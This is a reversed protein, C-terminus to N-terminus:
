FTALLEDLDEAVEAALKYMGEWYRYVVLGGLNSELSPFQKAQWLREVEEKDEDPDLEPFPEHGKIIYYITSGLAFIDTKKDVTNFDRCPM